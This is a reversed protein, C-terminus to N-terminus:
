DTIEITFECFLKTHRSVIIDYTDKKNFDVNHSIYFHSLGHEDKGDMDYIDEHGDRTTMKVRGGSLDLGNDKDVQYITKNPYRVIEIAVWENGYECRNFLLIISICVILYYFRKKM